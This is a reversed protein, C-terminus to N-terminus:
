VDGTNTSPFARGPGWIIRVAGSAPAGAAPGDSGGGGGGYVGANSAGGNVGGSGGNGGGASVSISGAGGLGSVGEGLVGTGGGCGGAYSFDGGGGGGAGGGTGALGGGGYDAGGNGGNGSYGGAGGGGAGAGQTRSGGNGGNGGLPFYDGGAGGDNWNAAKNGGGGRVTGTSIFYSDGGNTGYSITTSNIADVIGGDGVVVTYSQGPTVPISNVYGLGGGGGGAGGSGSYWGSGGGGICVVDVQYVNAPCIWTHTGPATYLAQGSDSTPDVQSTFTSIVEWTDINPYYLELGNLTTNYFLMPAVPSAPREASTGSDIYKIADLTYTIEADIAWKVGDWKFTFGNETHTDNLAPANPFNIAM